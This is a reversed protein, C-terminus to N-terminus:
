NLPLVNTMEPNEVSPVRIEAGVTDWQPLATHM